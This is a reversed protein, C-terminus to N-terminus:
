NFCLLESGSVGGYDGRNISQGNLTIHIYLRLIDIRRKIEWM